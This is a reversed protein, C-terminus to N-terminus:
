PVDDSANGVMSRFADRPNDKGTTQLFEPLTGNFLVRGKHLLVILDTPAIEDILHTAWLVGMRESQVLGRVIKVVSERSSATRTAASRAGSKM